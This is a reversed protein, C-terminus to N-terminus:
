GFYVMCQRSLACLQGSEDFIRGSQQTYGEAASEVQYDLYFWDGEVREPPVLFELSWTLSSAPVPPTDFYSLVVPPPIDCIAVLKETRFDQLDARHRVWMALHRKSTGSFPLGGDVWCGDFYGLFSPLRRSHDAFPIGQERPKFIVDHQAPVILGQRPNGFVGMAQLAVQGGSVVDASMQTVNKGQRLIQATVAIEGPPIPAIFSVMLSRMPKATDLLKRMATVAFSSAIGGFASRGQTWDEDFHAINDASAHLGSLIELINSQQQSM